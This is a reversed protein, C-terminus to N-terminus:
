KPQGTNIEGGGYDIGKLGGRTWAFYGKVIDFGDSSRPPAQWVNAPPNLTPNYKIYSPNNSTMNFPDWGPNSDGVRMTRVSGDFFALPQRVDDYAFFTTQRGFHRQEYDYTLVKGGPFQVDALKNGGLKTKTPYYYYLLAEAQSIGGPTREFSAVVTMYSSSYPWIKGFDTGAGITGGPSPYIQKADFGRPDRAWALRYKDDPCIVTTDPLKAQLYDMLVLHTNSVHPIWNSLKKMDERDARRRLIDIAQDAAAILDNSHTNLDSYLSQKTSKIWSFAYIRDQFDAAYTGLSKGMTSLNNTCVLLKGTRRSQSLGTVLISILLAITAIVVLLEILTFARAASGPVSRANLCM